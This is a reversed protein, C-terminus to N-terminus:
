GSAKRIKRSTANPGPRSRRRYSYPPYYEDFYGHMVLEQCLYLPDLDLLAPDKSYLDAVAAFVKASRTLRPLSLVRERGCEDACMCYPCQVYERRIRGRRLIPASPATSWDTATRTRALWASRAMFRKGILERPDHEMDPDYEDGYAAQFIEAAKTGIEVYTEKTKPDKQLKSWDMFEFGAYKGGVVKVKIAMQPGFNGSTEEGDLVEAIVSQGDPLTPKKRAKM